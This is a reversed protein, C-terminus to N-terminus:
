VGSGQCCGSELLWQSAWSAPLRASFKYSGQLAVCHCTDITVCMKVSQLVAHSPRAQKYYLMLIQDEMKMDEIMMDM